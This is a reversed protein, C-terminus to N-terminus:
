MAGTAFASIVSPAATDFGVVDLMGPDDPDAITFDNGAMGVVVLKADIGRKNRYRHLAQVPHEGGFWTENDTFILFTDVDIGQAEAYLMPVACDTGQHPCSEVVALADRLQQGPTINLPVFGQTFGMITHLPEVAATVLSMATAGLMCAMGPMGSIERGAMSQSVDLGILTRKGTPEVNDFAKYFAADLADIIPGVPTWTSSGRLSHGGAYTVHAMLLALPHVRAKRIRDGDALQELVVKTANSMPALLGIRTMTPLNRVLAGTPMGQELLAEWVGPDALHDTNLAERPLDPNERILKVTETASPSAQARRFAGVIAAQTTGYKVGDDNDANGAVWAFLGDHGPDSPVPKSLRLLDRHSWGDRQRYKVAQYAVANVDRDYWAGVARQLWRGWGRQNTAYEVFHFLHTGTRCVKQVAELTRQRFEVDSDYRDRPAGRPPEPLNTWGHSAVLALAFIAPDNKPARGAESIEVIAALTRDRDDKMCRLVVDASDATLHGEGIYYTGGESGLILFRHLRGWDGVKWAYGGASNPVQTSGPIPKSQPTSRTSYTSYASSM